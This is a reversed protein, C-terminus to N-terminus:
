PRSNRRVSPHRRRTRDGEVRRSTFWTRLPAPRSPGGVTEERPLLRRERRTHVRPPHAAQRYVFVFRYVATAATLVLMMIAAQGSDGLALTLFHADDEWVADWALRGTIRGLRQADSARLVQMGTFENYVGGVM